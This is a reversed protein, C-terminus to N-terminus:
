DGAPPGPSAGLRGASGRSESQRPCEEAATALLRALDRAEAATMIVLSYRHDRYHALEVVDVSQWGDALDLECVAANVEFRERRGAVHPMSLRVVGPTGYRAEPNGRQSTVPM